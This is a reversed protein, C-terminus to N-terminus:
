KRLNVFFSAVCVCVCVLSHMGHVRVVPKLLDLVCVNDLKLWKLHEKSANHKLRWSKWLYAFWNRNRHIWVCMCGQKGIFRQSKAHFCGFHSQQACTVHHRCQGCTNSHWIHCKQDSSWCLPFFFVIIYMIIIEDKFMVWKSQSKTKSHKNSKM